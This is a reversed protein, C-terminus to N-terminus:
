VKRTANNHCCHDDDGGEDCEHCKSILLNPQLAMGSKSVRPLITWNILVKGDLVLIIFLLPWVCTM